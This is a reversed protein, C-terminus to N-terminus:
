PATVAATGDPSYFDGGLSWYLVGPDERQGRCGEAVAGVVFGWLNPRDVQPCGAGGRDVDPAARAVGAKEFLGQRYM